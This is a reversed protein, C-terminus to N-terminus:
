LKRPIAPSVMATQIVTQMPNRNPRQWCRFLILRNEKNIMAGGGEEHPRQRRRVRRRRCARIPAGGGEKNPRQRRRVRRRRRCARIPAGGGEKNPRQWRRFLILSRGTKRKRGMTTTTALAMATATGMDM